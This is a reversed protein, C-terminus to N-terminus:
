ICSFCRISAAAVITSCDHTSAYTSGTLITIPEEDTCTDPGTGLHVHWGRHKKDM